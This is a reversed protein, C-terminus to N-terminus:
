SENDNSNSINNDNLTSNSVNDDYDSVKINAKNVLVM